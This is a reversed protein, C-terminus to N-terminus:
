YLLLPLIGEGKGETEEVSVKRVGIKTGDRGHDPTEPTVAPSVVDLPRLTFIISIVRSSTYPKNFPLTWM